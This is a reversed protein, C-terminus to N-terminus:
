VTRFYLPIARSYPNGSQVARQVRGPGADHVKGSDWVGTAQAIRFGFHSGKELVLNELDDAGHLLRNLVGLPGPEACMADRHACLLRPVLAQLRNVCAVRQKRPDNGPGARM